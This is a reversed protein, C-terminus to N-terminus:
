SLRYILVLETYKVMRESRVHYTGHTLHLNYISTVMYEDIDAALYLDIGHAVAYKRCDIQAAVTPYNSLSIPM